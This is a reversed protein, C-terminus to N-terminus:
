SMLGHVNKAFYNRILLLEKEEFQYCDQKHSYNYMVKELTLFMEKPLSSLGWNGAEQKSSILGERLYLYVRILNLTCYVPEDFINELCDNFDGIISSTYFSHPILPFVDM